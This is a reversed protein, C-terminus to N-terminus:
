AERFVGDGVDELVVAELLTAEFDHVVAVGALLEGGLDEESWGVVLTEAVHDVVFDVGTGATGQLDKGTLGDFTTGAVTTQTESLHLAIAHDRV